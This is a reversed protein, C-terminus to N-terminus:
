GTRVNLMKAPLFADDSLFLHKQAFDKTEDPTNQHPEILPM